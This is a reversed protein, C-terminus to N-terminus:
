YRAGTRGMLALAAVTKLDAIEGARVLRELEAVSFSRVELAEDEDASVPPDDAGAARLGRALYVHMEEDCYGPTPFFAGLFDIREAVLGIEEQCERQAAARPDEGRKLSGAPLEWLRRGIPHRYQRVLVYSGTADIPVIVVSGPHRVVEVDLIPGEPLAITEVAVSFIRGDFVKRISKPVFPKDVATM